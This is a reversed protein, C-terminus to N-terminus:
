TPGKEPAAALMAKAKDLWERRVENPADRWQLPKAGRYTPHEWYLQEALDHPQMKVLKMGEPVAQQTAPAALYVGAMLPLERDLGSRAVGDPFSTVSTVIADPEQVTPVPPTTYLKTGVELRYRTRITTPGTVEIDDDFVDAEQVPQVPAPVEARLGSQVCVGTAHCDVVKPAAPPTTKLKHINDRVYDQTWEKFSPEQVPAPQVASPEETTPNAAPPTTYLIRRDKEPRETYASFGVDHWATSNEYYRIQYVPEQVTPAPQAPPTYGVLGELPGIAQV